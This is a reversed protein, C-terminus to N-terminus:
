LRPLPAAPLGCKASFAIVDIRRQGDAVAVRKLQKYEDITVDM